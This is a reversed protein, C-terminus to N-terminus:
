RKEIEIFKNKNIYYTWRNSMKLAYGWPFVGQQLGIRVFQESVNMRRACEKVTMRNSM